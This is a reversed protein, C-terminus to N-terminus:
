ENISNICHDTEIFDLIKVLLKGARTLTHTKINKGLVSSITEGRKGFRYGSKKILVDNFLDAAIVNGFLDIHRATSYFWIKLKKTDKKLLLKIVAYLSVIPLSIYLLSMAIILLLLEIM